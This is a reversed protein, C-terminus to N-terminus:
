GRFNIQGISLEVELGIWDDSNPGWARILARTNSQNLQVTDGNSLAAVPKDFAGDEIAEITARVPGSARIDEVKLYRDGGYKNMDMEDNGTTQPEETGGRAPWPPSPTKGSTAAFSMSQARKPAPEFYRCAAASLDFRPGSKGRMLSAYKLCKGNLGTKDRRRSKDDAYVCDVCTAGTPGTGSFFAMGAIAARPEGTLYPSGILKMTAELPAVPENSGTAGGYQNSGDGGEGRTALQAVRMAVQDVTLHRRRANKSISYLWPDGSYVTFTPEVGAMVCALSRNRGDLIQLDPTRTIPERLGNAAIDDALALLDTPSMEPWAACAPHLDLSQAADHRPQAGDAAERGAAPSNNNKAKGSLKRM